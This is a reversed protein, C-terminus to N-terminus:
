GVGTSGEVVSTVAQEVSAEVPAVAPVGAFELVRGVPSGPPVVVRLVQQRRSLRRALDFLLSVGTSDLYTTGSLDVVLGTAENTVSSLVVARVEGINSLDLEGQVRAVVVQGAHDVRVRGIDSM